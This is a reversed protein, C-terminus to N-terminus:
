NNIWETAVFTRLGMSIPCGKFVLDCHGEAYVNFYLSSSSWEAWSDYHDYAVFALGASTYSDKTTVNTVTKSTSGTYTATWPTCIYVHGVLPVGAWVKSTGSKSAANSMITCSLFTFILLCLVLTKRKHM